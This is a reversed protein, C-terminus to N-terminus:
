ICTTAITAVDQCASYGPRYHRIQVLPDSYSSHDGAIKVVGDAIAFVPTGEDTAIDIGRHFDYRDNESALPRPGFPSALPLDTYDFNGWRVPPCGDSAVWGAPSNESIRGCLPWATNQDSQQAFVPNWCLFLVIVFFSFRKWLM